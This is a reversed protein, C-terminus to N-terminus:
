SPDAATEPADTSKAPPRTMGLLKAVTEAAQASEAEHGHALTTLPIPVRQAVSSAKIAAAVQGPKSQSAEVV